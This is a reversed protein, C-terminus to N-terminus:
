ASYAVVFVGTWGMVLRVAPPTRELTSAGVAITAGLGLEWARTFPSFYATAPAARTLYISWGLSAGALVVVVPLLRREHHAGGRRRRAVVGFLAFSLLLPWVLYFQE